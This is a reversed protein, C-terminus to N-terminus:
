LREKLEREACEACAKEVASVLRRYQLAQGRNWEDIIFNADVEAMPVGYRALDALKQLGCAHKAFVEVLALRRSGRWITVDPKLTKTPNLWTEVSVKDDPELGALETELQSDCKPCTRVVRLRGREAALQQIERM